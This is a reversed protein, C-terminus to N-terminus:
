FLIFNSLVERLDRLRELGSLCETISQPKTDEGTLVVAQNLGSPNM